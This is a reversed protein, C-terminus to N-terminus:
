CDLRRHPLFHLRCGGRRERPAVGPYIWHARRKARVGGGQRLTTESEEEAASMASMASMVSMLVMAM